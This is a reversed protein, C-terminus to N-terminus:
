SVSRLRPKAPEVDPHTQIERVDEYFNAANRQDRIISRASAGPLRHTRLYRFLRDRDVVYQHPTFPAFRFVYRRGEEDFQPTESAPFEEEPVADHM